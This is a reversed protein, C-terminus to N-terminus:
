RAAAPEVTINGRMAALQLVPGGGGSELQLAPAPTAGPARVLGAPAEAHLTFPGPTLAVRIDGERAKFDYRGGLRLSGVWVIGGSTSLLHVTATRVEHASIRGDVVRAVLLQGDVSVLELDGSVGDAEVDGHIRTLQQRGSLANTKVPGDIDYARVTGGLSALAAGRRFGSAELDGSWTSAKVRIARPADVTLDIGMDAAAGAPLARFTDGVRVGTRVHVKGDAMEVSVRLRDLAASSAAHKRAVIKVEEKDWARMTLRGLPQEISLSEAGTAPVYAISVELEEALAGASLLCLIALQRV